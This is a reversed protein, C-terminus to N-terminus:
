GTNNKIRDMELILADAVGTGWATHGGDPIIKLEAAPMRQHLKIATFPPCIMDQGGQIIVTPTDIAAAKRLLEGDELFCNNILYHLHVRSRALESSHDRRTSDGSKPSGGIGMAAAEFDAWRTAAGIAITGEESELWSYYTGVVNGDIGETFKQHAEPIFRRLGDTFWSVESQSGLFVGRLILEKVDNPYEFAYALALASGWSGGFVTWEKEIRLYTKIVHIDRVLHSLTNNATEGRPLSKGCGRQDFLIVDFYDPDFYRRHNKNISSGPGGHLFVVPEGGRRGVREVYVQHGQGVDIMESFFPSIDPYVPM